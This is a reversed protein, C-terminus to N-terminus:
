LQGLKALRSIKKPSNASMPFLASEAFFLGFSSISQIHSLCNFIHSLLSNASRRSARFKKSHIEKFKGVNSFFFLRHLSFDFPLYLSFTLCVFLCVSLHHLSFSFPLGM